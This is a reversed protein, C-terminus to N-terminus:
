MLVYRTSTSLTFSAPYPFITWFYAVCLGGVVLALRYGALKYAPYAPQSNATAVAVGIKKVELEYGIILISTVIGLIAVIALKPFKLVIYFALFVWLWM